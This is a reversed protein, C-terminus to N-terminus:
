VAHCYLIIVVKLDSILLNYRFDPLDLKASSLSICFLLFCDDHRENPCLFKLKDKMKPAALTSICTSVFICISMLQGSFLYGGSDHSFNHPWLLMSLDRNEWIYINPNTTENSWKLLTYSKWKHLRFLIVLLQLHATKKWCSSRSGTNGANDSWQSNWVRQM